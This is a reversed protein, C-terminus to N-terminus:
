RISSYLVLLLFTCNQIVSPSRNCKEGKHPLTWFQNNDRCTGTNPPQGLFTHNELYDCVCVKHPHVIFLFFDHCFPWTVHGNCKYEYVWDNHPDAAMSSYMAFLSTHKMKIQRCSLIKSINTQLQLILFATSHTMWVNKWCHSPPSMHLFVLKQSNKLGSSCKM